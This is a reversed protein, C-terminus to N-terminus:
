GLPYRAVSFACFPFSVPDRIQGYRRYNGAQVSDSFFFGLSIWPARPISKKQRGGYKKREGEKKVQDGEELNGWIRSIKKKRINVM